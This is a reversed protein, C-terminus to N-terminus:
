AVKNGYTDCEIHINTEITKTTIGLLKHKFTGTAFVQNGSCYSSGGTFHWASNEIIDDYSSSTAVCSVGEVISFTGYLRFTWLLKNSASYYNSSKTHTVSYENSRTKSNEKDVYYETVLYSGDDYVETTTSVLEGEISTNAAVKPQKLNVALLCLTLAFLIFLFKKM